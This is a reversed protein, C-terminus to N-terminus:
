SDKSTKLTATEPRHTAALRLTQGPHLRDSKLHNWRRLDGIRLSYRRAIQSLTEGRRVTHPPRKAAHPTDADHEDDHEVPTESAVDATVAPTTSLDENVAKQFQPVQSQPLLLYDATKADVTDNRFGSNSARLAEVSIGAHRAAQAIPMSQKLPVAVLHDEAALTPLHVHFRGPERVICAIALLKTLHERTVRKVPLRPIQPQDPPTGHQDLLKRVSFEGANYAYDTVRWDNFEDQYRQLLTMVADTSAAVDLRADYTKSVRLGMAQATAPMLQWMGAPRNHRSLVPQFHSEVWPLLVFEGAVHHSAAIQEVYALRPLAERLRDEFHRPNNTFNRAWSVVAPDAACDAMEFSGRLRNWVDGSSTDPGSGNGVLAPTQESASTTDPPSPTPSAPGTIHKPIPTVCSALLLALAPALRPISARNM